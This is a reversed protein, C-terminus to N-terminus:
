GAGCSARANLQTTGMQGAVPSVLDDSTYAKGDSGFSRITPPGAGWDLLFANGWGDILYEEDLLCVRRGQARSQFAFALLSDTSSPYRGQSAACYQAAAVAILNMKAKTIKRKEIMSSSDSVLQGSEAHSGSFVTVPACDQREIGFKSEGVHSGQLVGFLLILSLAM